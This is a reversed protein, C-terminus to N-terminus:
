IVMYRLSRPDAVETLLGYMTDGFQEARAFAEERNSVIRIWDLVESQPHGTLGLFWNYDEALKEWLEGKNSDLAVSKLRELPRRKILGLCEDPRISNRPVALPVVLSFCTLLRSFRLKLNKLQDRQTELEVRQSSDLINRRSEYNLCLTKWYRLIDNVLFTPRFDDKHNGYDRFYSDTIQRLVNEYLTENYIPISELLLLLRATFLNEYDDKRGGLNEIMSQLYHVELYQGDGSFEPFGMDRCKDILSADMLTKDIFSMQADSRSGEKIFFLDVDSNESAELRGFSGTVYICLDSHKTVEALASVSETFARLRAESSNKREDILNSGSM